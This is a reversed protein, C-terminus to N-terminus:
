SKLRFDRKALHLDSIVEFILRLSFSEPPRASRYRLAGQWRMLRHALIGRHTKNLFLFRIVDLDCFRGFAEKLLVGISNSATSNMSFRKPLQRHSAIGTGGSKAAYRRPFAEVGALGDHLDFSKSKLRVVFHRVNM